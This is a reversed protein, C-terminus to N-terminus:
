SHLASRGVTTPTLSFVFNGVFCRSYQFEIPKPPVLSLATLWFRHAPTGALGVDLALLAGTHAYAAAIVPDIATARSTVFLTRLDKGGFCPMTPGPTPLRLALLHIGESSFRNLVGASVGASWYAGEADCAGGDPRGLQENLQAVRARAGIVGTAPDFEFRDIWGATSDSWYMVRGDPSWALGNSTFVGGVPKSVAGDAAVRFLSAIPARQRAQHM